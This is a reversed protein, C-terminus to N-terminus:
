KSENTTVTRKESISSTKAGVSLIPAFNDVNYKTKLEDILAIINAEANDDPLVYINPVNKPKGKVYCSGTSHKVFLGNEVFADICADVTKRNLGLSRVATDISGCFGYTQQENEIIHGRIYTYVKLLTPKSISCKISMLTDFASYTLKCFSGTIDFRISDQLAFGIMSNSSKKIDNGYVQVIEHNNILDQLTRRVYSSFSNSHRDDSYGCKQCIFSVSTFVVREINAYRELCIRVMMEKFDTEIFDTQYEIPLNSLCNM